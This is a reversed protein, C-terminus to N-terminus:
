SAGAKRSLNSSPQAHAPNDKPLAAALLLIAGGFFLTDAFYNLGEIVQSSRVAAVLM